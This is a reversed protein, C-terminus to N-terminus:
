RIAKILLRSSYIGMVVLLIGAANSVLVNTLAFRIEGDRFLNITEVSYSSFTTFAGLFGITLLSRLETPIVASEFLEFLFGIAFCGALNVVLTGWPFLEGVSHQIYKSLWYRSLAGASGGFAILLANKM